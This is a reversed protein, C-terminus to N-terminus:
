QHAYFESRIRSVELVRGIETSIDNVHMGTCVINCENKLSCCHDSVSLVLSKGDIENTNDFEVAEEASDNGSHFCCQIVFM